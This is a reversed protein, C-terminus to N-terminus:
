FQFALSAEASGFLAEVTQWGTDFVNKLWQSLNVLTIGEAVSTSVAPSQMLQNLHALLDELPQLQTIPLQEFAATQAFGLVTAERFLEDLQVVVYGIRESWVEPPIYCTQEDARLPRCELRGIGKVELDAVNVCLPARSPEM